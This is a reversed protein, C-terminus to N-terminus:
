TRRFNSDVNKKKKPVLFKNKFSAAYIEQNNNTMYKETDYVKNKLIDLYM